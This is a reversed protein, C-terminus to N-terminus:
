YILTLAPAHLMKSINLEIMQMHSTRLLWITGLVCVSSMHFLLGFYPIREWHTNAYRDWKFECDSDLVILNELVFLFM